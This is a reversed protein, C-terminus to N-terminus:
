FLQKENQNPRSCCRSKSHKMLFCYLYSKQPKAYKTMPVQPGKGDRNYRGKDVEELYGFMWLINLAGAYTKPDRIATEYSFGWPALETPSKKQTFHLM